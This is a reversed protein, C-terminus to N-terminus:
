KVQEEPCKNNFAKQQSEITENFNKITLHAIKDSSEDSGRTTTTNDDSLMGGFDAACKGRKTTSCECTIVVSPPSLITAKKNMTASASNSRQSPQKNRYFLLNNGVALSLRRQAPMKVNNEHKLIQAAVSTTSTVTAFASATVAGSCISSLM